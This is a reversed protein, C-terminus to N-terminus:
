AAADSGQKEATPFVRYQTTYAENELVLQRGTGTEANIIIPGALNVTMEQPKGHPIAATVYTLTVTEPTLGLAALAADSLVPAYDAVYNFPDAVLFAVAPDDVSQLWRFTSGPKHELLLFRTLKSFGVLGEPFNLVDQDEFEVTGFRSEFTSM